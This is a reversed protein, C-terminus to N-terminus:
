ADHDDGRAWPECGEIKPAIRPTIQEIVILGEDEEIITYVSGYVILRRPM